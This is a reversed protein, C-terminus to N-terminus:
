WSEERRPGGEVGPARLEPIHPKRMYVSVGARHRDGPGAPSPPSTCIPHVQSHGLPKPPFGAPVAQGSPFSFTM